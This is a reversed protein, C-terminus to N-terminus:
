LNLKLWFPALYGKFRHACNWLQPWRILISLSRFGKDMKAALSMADAAERYKKQDILSITEELDIRGLPPLCYHDDSNVPGATNFFRM